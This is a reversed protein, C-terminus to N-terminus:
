AAEKKARKMTEVKIFKQMWAQMAESAKKTPKCNSHNSENGYFQGLKGGPLIEATAVPRGRYRVFVLVCRGEIVKGIYDATVLCQKLTDAQFVIDDLSEPIYVHMGSKGVQLEKGLWGSVAKLYKEGKAKLEEAKKLANIAAVEAMVKDHAKRLKKPFRWYSERMDHGAEKAMTAYDRYLSMESYFARNMSDLWRFVDYEVRTERCQRARYERWEDYTCGFRISCRVGELHPNRVGPNKRIWELVPKRDKARWLRGDLALHVYGNALLMETEHPYKKWYPLLHFYDRTTLDSKAFIWRFEPYKKCFVAKDAESPSQWSLNELGTYSKVWPELKQVWDRCYYRDRFKEGPWGVTWGAIAQCEINRSFQRGDEYIKAVDLHHARGKLLGHATVIRSLEGRDLVLRETRDFKHM